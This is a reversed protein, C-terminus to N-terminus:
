LKLIESQTYYCFRHLFVDIGTNNDYYEEFKKKSQSALDGEKSGGISVWLFAMNAETLRPDHVIQNVFEAMMVTKGSGTPAQFRITQKSEKKWKHLFEDILNTLAKEQFPKLIIQKM